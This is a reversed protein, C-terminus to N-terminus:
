KLGMQESLWQPRDTTIGKVGLGALKKAIRPDNVTYVYVELQQDRLKQMFDRDVLKYHVDLGELKHEKAIKIAEDLSYEDYNHLLWYAPINPMLAKAQM